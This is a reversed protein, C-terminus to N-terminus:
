KQEWLLLMKTAVIPPPENEMSHRFAKLILAHYSRM